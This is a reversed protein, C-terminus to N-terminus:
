VDVVVRISCRGRGSKVELDHPTVAKVSLLAYNAKTRKFSLRGEIRMRVDSKLSTVNFAFASLQRADVMSLIDQLVFWALDNADGASERIAIHSPRAKDKKIKKIDLMISLLALASNELAETFDKGYAKFQMDATHPLYRFKEM